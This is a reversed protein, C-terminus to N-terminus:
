PPSGVFVPRTARVPNSGTVRRISFTILDLSPGIAIASRRISGSLVLVRKLYLAGNGLPPCCAGERAGTQNAVLRPDHGRTLFYGGFPGWQGVVRQHRSLQEHATWAATTGGAGSV